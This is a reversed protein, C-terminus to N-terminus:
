DEFVAIGIDSFEIQEESVGRLKAEARRKVDEFSTEENNSGADLDVGKLAAAFKQRSHEQERAAVLIAQLEELNLSDEIEDFNKWHGLLFLEAELRAL